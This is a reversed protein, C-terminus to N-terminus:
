RKRPDDKGKECLLTWIYGACRETETKKERQIDM